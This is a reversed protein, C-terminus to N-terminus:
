TGANIQAPDVNTHTRIIDPFCSEDVAASDWVLLDRLFSGSGDACVSEYRTSPPTETPPDM